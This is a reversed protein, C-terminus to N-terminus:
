GHYWVIEKYLNSEMIGALRKRARFLRVKLTAKPLGMIKELELLNMEEFYFLTLISTDEPPLKALAAQILASREERAMRELAHDMEGLERDRLDRYEMHQGERSNKRTRDLCANYAIRYIWTSLKSDGKFHELSVHVKLFVDQAVEEADERSGLMRLALTFVLDKHHEVLDAFGAVNGSRLKELLEKDKKTLM